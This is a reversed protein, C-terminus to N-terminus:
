YLKTKMKWVKSRREQKGSMVKKKHVEQFEYVTGVEPKHYVDALFYLEEDKNLAITYLGSRETTWMHLIDDEFWFQFIPANKYAKGAQSIM